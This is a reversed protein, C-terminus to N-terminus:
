FYLSSKETIGSFETRMMLVICGQIEQTMIQKKEKLIFYNVAPTLVNKWNRKDVEFNGESVAKKEM